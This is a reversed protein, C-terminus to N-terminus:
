TIFIIETKVKTGSVFVSTGQVVIAAKKIATATGPFILRDPCYGIVGVHLSGSWRPDKKEVQM